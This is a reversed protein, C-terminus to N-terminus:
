KGIIFNAPLQVVKGFQYILKRSNYFNAEGMKINVTVVEPIRYYLKDYEPVAANEPIPRTIVTVDKSKQFPILQITVPTGTNGTAAAPGTQGSFRLLTIAKGSMDKQPLLTYSFARVETWVKGAFLALYEMEMKNMEDIASKGQPFVNAEGTLILHKGDRLELLSKAAKEALQDITLQKKKEVLYPIKIFSTDLKVLKFATDSQTVSYEDSGMDMFGRQYYSTTPNTRREKSGEYIDPNLDLILGAKKLTLVNTQFLTNSEIIYYESPDLEGSSNVKIGKISWTEQDQTIIDKIGLLEGAFKSYPGPREIRKEIDIEIDFVTMPLGYVLSGDTLHITDGLPLIVTKSDMLGKKPLCSISFLLILIILILNHPAPHPTRPAPHLTFNQM